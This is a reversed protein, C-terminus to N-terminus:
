YRVRVLCLGRAPACPGAMARDGSRTIDVIEDPERHATGVQVLTGVINRVMGKLFANAEVTIVVMEGRRRVDAVMMMRCTSRVERVDNAWAAFDHEGLLLSAAQQMRGADLERAHHWTYRRWLVAPRPRNLVLYVYRRSRASFRAHFGDETRDAATIRVDEPLNANLAVALRDDPVSTEMDFSVVQGTAHVGADTRGAGEVRSRLRGIRGVADELEGQVSRQDLQYQFGALDTGDYEVTLRFRPM